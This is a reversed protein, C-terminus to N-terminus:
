ETLALTVAAYCLFHKTYWNDGITGFQTTGNSAANQLEKWAHDAWRTDNTMRYVCAFAKIRM